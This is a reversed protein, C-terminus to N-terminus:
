MWLVWARGQYRSEERLGPIVEYDLKAKWSIPDQHSIFRDPFFKAGKQRSSDDVSLKSLVICAEALSQIYLFDPDEVSVDDFASITSGSFAISPVVTHKNKRELLLNTRASLSTTEELHWVLYM